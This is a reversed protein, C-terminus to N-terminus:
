VNKNARHPPQKQTRIEHVQQAPTKSVMSEGRGDRGWSRVLDAKPKAPSNFNYAYGGDDPSPEDKAKEQLITKITTMKGTGSEGLIYINFGHSEIGLGFDLPRLARSQGITEKLPEIEDTTKFSFESPECCNYLEKKAIKKLM